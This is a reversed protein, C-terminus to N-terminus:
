RIGDDDLDTCGLSASIGLEEHELLHLDVRSEARPPSKLASRTSSRGAERHEAGGTAAGGRQEGLLRATVPPLAHRRGLLAAAHLRARDRDRHELLRPVGVQRDPGLVDVDLRHASGPGTALVPVLGVRCHTGTVSRRPELDAALRLPRLVLVACQRM